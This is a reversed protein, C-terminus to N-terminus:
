FCGEKDDDGTFIFFDCQDFDDVNFLESLKMLQMYREGVEITELLLATKPCVDKGHKKLLEEAFDITLYREELGETNIVEEIADDVDEEVARENIFDAVLELPNYFKLLFAVDEDHLYLNSDALQEFTDTVAAIRHANEFINEESSMLMEAKFDAFNQEVRNKLLAIPTLNKGM